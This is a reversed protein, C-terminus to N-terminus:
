LCHPFMANSSLIHEIMIIGIINIANFAIPPQVGGKKHGSLNFAIQYLVISNSTISLYAHRHIFIFQILQTFCYSLNHCHPHPPNFLSFLRFIKSPPTARGSASKKCLGWGYSLGVGEGDLRMLREGMVGGVLYFDVFFFCGDLCKEWLGLGKEGYVELYAAM